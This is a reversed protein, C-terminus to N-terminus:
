CVPESGVTHSDIYIFYFIDYESGFSSPNVTVQVKISNYVFGM